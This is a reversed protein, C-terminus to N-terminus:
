VITWRSHADTRGIVLAMAGLIKGRIGIKRVFFLELGPHVQCDGKELLQFRGQQGTGAKTNLNQM